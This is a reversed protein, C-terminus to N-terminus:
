FNNLELATDNLSFQDTNPLIAYFPILTSTKIYFLGNNYIQLPEFSNLMCTSM